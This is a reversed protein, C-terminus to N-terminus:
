AIHENLLQKNSDILHFVEQFRINKMKRDDEFLSLLDAKLGMGMNDVAERLTLDNLPDGGVGHGGVKAEGKMQETWNAKFKAMEQKMKVDQDLMKATLLRDYDAYNEGLQRAAWEKIVQEKAALKTDFQLREGSMSQAVEAQADKSKEMKSLIEEKLTQNEGLIDKLRALLKREIEITYAQCRGEVLTDLKRREELIKYRMDETKRDIFNKIDSNNAEFKEKLLRNTETVLKNYDTQSSEM